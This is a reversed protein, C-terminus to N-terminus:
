RGEPLVLRISMRDLNRLGPSRPRASVSFRFMRPRVSDGTSPLYGFRQPPFAAPSGRCYAFAEAPAVAM